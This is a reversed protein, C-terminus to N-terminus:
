PQVPPTPETTAQPKRSQVFGTGAIGLLTGGGAVALMAGPGAGIGALGFLGAGLVACLSLFITTNRDM